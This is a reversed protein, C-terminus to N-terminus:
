PLIAMKNMGAEKVHTQGGSGESYTDCEEITRSEETVCYPTGHISSSIINESEFSCSPFVRVLQDIYIANLKDHSIRRFIRLLTDSVGHGKIRL